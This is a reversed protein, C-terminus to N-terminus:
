RHADGGRSTPALAGTQVLFGAANWYDSHRVIKGGAVEGFSVARASWKREDDTM